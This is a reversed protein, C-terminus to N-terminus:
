RGAGAAPLRSAMYREVRNHVEAGVGRGRRLDFVFRPDRTAERGFRSPALGHHDMHREIDHLLSM